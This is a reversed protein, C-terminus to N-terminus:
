RLTNKSAAAFLPRGAVAVADRTFFITRRTKRERPLMRTVTAKKFFFTKAARRSLVRVRCRLSHSAPSAQSRRLRFVKTEFSYLAGRMAKARHTRARCDRVKCLHRVAVPGDEVQRARLRLLVLLLTAREPDVDPPHGVAGVAHVLFFLRQRM